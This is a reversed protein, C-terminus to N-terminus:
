FCAPCKKESLPVKFAEKCHALMQAVNMKGWQRQTQPTLSNIRNIIETHVDKDFLNKM